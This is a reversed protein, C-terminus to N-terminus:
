GLGRRASVGISIVLGIYMTPLILQLLLSSFPDADTSAMGVFKYYYPGLALMAVLVFFALAVDVLQVKARRDIM